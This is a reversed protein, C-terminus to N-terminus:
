YIIVSMNVVKQRAGLVRMSCIDSCFPSRLLGRAAAASKTFDVSEEEEDSYEDSSVDVQEPEERQKVSSQADAYNVPKGMPVCRSSGNGM